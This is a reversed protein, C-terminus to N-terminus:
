PLTWMRGHSVLHVGYSQETGHLRGNEYATYVMEDAMQKRMKRPGGNGVLYERFKSKGLTNM